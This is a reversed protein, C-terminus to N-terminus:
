QSLIIVNFGLGTRGIALATACAFCCESGRRVIANRAREACWARAVVEEGPSLADIILLENATVNCEKLDQVKVMNRLYKSVQQEHLIHTGVCPPAAVFLPNSYLTYAIQRGNVEFEIRARYQEPPLGTAVQSRDIPVRDLYIAGLQSQSGNTASRAPDAAEIWQSVDLINELLTYRNGGSPQDFGLGTLIDEGPSTKVPVPVDVPRASLRIWGTVNTEPAPLPGVWGCVSRVDGMGGLVRGLVSRKPWYSRGNIILGNDYFPAVNLNRASPSAFVLASMIKYRYIKGPLVLNFLWDWMYGNWALRGSIMDTYATEICNRAEDMYPWNLAEGFRILAEAQSRSRSSVFTYSSPSEKATLNTPGNITVFAM